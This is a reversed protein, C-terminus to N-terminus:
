KGIFAEDNIAGSKYAGRLASASLSAHKASRMFRLARIDGKQVFLDLTLGLWRCDPPVLSLLLKRISEVPDVEKCGREKCGREKCGREKCGREK